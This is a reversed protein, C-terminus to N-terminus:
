GESYQSLARLSSNVVFDRNTCTYSRAGCSVEEHWILPLELCAGKIERHLFSTFTWELDSGIKAFRALGRLSLCETSM